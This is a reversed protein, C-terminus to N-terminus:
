ICESRRVAIPNQELFRREDLLHLPESPWASRRLDLLLQGAWVAQWFTRQALDISGGLNDRIWNIAATLSMGELVASHEACFSITSHPVIDKEEKPLGWPLAARVTRGIQKDFSQPTILLWAVDQSEWYHKEISLLSRKRPSLSDTDSKVSVALLQYNGDTSKLTVAFDTSMIWPSRSKGDAITPHKIGLREACSLTGPALKNLEYSSYATLHPVSEYLNLSMQERVDVIDALMTIFTFVDSEIDSLTHHSRQTHVWQLLQSRGSSAPDGRTVQHWPKYDSLTGTGRGGKHWNAIKTPSFRNGKRM